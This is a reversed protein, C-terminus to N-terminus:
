FILMVIISRRIMSLMYIEQEYVLTFIEVFSMCNINM